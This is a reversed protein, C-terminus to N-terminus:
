DVINFMMLNYCEVLLPFLLQEDYEVDLISTRECDVYSTVLRMMKFRPNSMLVLIIFRKKRILHTYSISSLFRVKLVQYKMHMMLEKLKEDFVNAELDILSNPIIQNSL